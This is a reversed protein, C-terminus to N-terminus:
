DHDVIRLADDTPPSPPTYSSSAGGGSAIPAPGDDDDDDDDDDDELRSALAIHDPGGDLDIVDDDDDGDAAAMAVRDDQMQDLTATMLSWMGIQRFFAAEQKSERTTQMINHIIRAAQRVKSRRTRMNGYIAVASVLSGAVITGKVFSLGGMAAAGISFITVTLSVVLGLQRWTRGKRNTDVIQKQEKVVDVWVRELQEGGGVRTRVVPNESRWDVGSLYSDVVNQSPQSM